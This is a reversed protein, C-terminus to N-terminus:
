RGSSAWPITGTNELDVHRPPPSPPLTVTVATGAGFESTIALEGGHLRVLAFALSLGLGLGRNRRRYTTEVQEFPRVVRDLAEPPIGCGTDKVVIRAGNDCPRVVLSIRGGGPTFRIANQLLNGIAHRIAGEDALISPLPEEIDVTVSLSRGSADEAHRRALGSVIRGLDVPQLTLKRHGAEIKAVDLIQNIVHLLEAGSGHIDAAYGTYRDISDGLSRERILESFGLIVNLPTRLEHSMMALFRAKAANAREAEEKALELRRQTQKQATADLTALIIGRTAGGYIFARGDIVYTRGDRLPVVEEFCDPPDSALIMLRREFAEPDAALRCALARREERPLTVWGDPLSWMELLRSNHALVNGDRDIVLVGFPNCEVVARLLAESEPEAPMAVVGHRGTGPPERDDSAAGANTDSATTMGITVHHGLEARGVGTSTM